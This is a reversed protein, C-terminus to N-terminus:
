PVLPRARGDPIIAFKYELKYELKFPLTVIDGPELARNEGPKLKDNNVSVGHRSHDSITVTYYAGCDCLTGCDTTARPM